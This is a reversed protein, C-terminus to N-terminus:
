TAVGVAVCLDPQVSALLLCTLLNAVCHVKSLVVCVICLHAHVGSVVCVVSGLQTSGDVGHSDYWEVFVEHQVGAALNGDSAESVEVCHFVSFDALAACM